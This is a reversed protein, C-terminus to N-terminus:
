HPCSDGDEANGIGSLQLIQTTGIMGAALIIEKRANVTMLSGAALPSITM